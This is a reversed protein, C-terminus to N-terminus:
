LGEARISVEAKHLLPSTFVIRIDGPEGTTQIYALLRGMCVRQRNDRHESMDTNSGNELGLLRAPGEVTCTIENDALRVPLGNDDVVEVYVHATARDASLTDRDAWAVVAFPRGTTRLTYDTLVRGSSDCAEATLTGEEFPIDWYIIGTADDYPKMTGVEEGNLLLRAQPANTYCVVRIEQGSEYNWIDQAHASLEDRKPYTGAYIVPEDKWMAAHFHGRPKPLSM